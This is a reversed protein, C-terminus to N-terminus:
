DELTPLAELVAWVLWTLFALLSIAIFFTGVGIQFAKLVQGIIFTSIAAHRAYVARTNSKSFRSFWAYYFLSGLAGIVTFLNAAPIALLTLLVGVVLFGISVIFLGRHIKSPTKM